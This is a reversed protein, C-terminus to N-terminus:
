QEEEFQDERLPLLESGNPYVPLRKSNSFQCGTHEPAHNLTSTLTITKSDQPVPKEPNTM